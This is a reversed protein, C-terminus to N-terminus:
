LESATQVSCVGQLEACHQDGEGEDGRAIDGPVVRHPHGFVDCCMLIAAHGHAYPLFSLVEDAYEELLLRACVQDMTVKPLYLHSGDVLESLETDLGVIYDLM